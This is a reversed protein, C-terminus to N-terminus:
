HESDGMLKGQVSNVLSPIVSHDLAHFHELCVSKLNFTSQSKLEKKLLPLAEPEGPIEKEQEWKVSRFLALSSM